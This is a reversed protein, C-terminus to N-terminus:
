AVGEEWCQQAEVSKQRMTVPEAQLRSGLTILLDSARCGMVSPGSLLPLWIFFSFELLSSRSLAPSTGPIHVALVFLLLLAVM